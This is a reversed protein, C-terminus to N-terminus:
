VNNGYQIFNGFSFVFLFLYTNSCYIFLCFSLYNLQSWCPLCTNAVENFNYFNFSVTIADHQYQNFTSEIYEKLPMPIKWGEVETGFNEGAANLILDKFPLLSIKQVASYERAITSLSCLQM